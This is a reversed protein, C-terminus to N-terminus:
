RTIRPAAPTFDVPSTPVGKLIVGDSVAYIFQPQAEGDLLIDVEITAGPDADFSMGNMGFDTDTVLQISGDGNLSLTDFANLEYGEVHSLQVRPDASVLVDFNCSTGSFATDCTTFVNWHGGGAYEVFLGVGDGPSAELTAGPDISVEAIVPGPDVITGDVGISADVFCGTGFLSLGACATLTTFLSAFNKMSANM